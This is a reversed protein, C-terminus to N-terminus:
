PPDVRNELDDAWQSWPVQTAWGGTYTSLRGCARMLWPLFGGFVARIFDVFKDYEGNWGVANSSGSLWVQIKPTRKSRLVYPLAAFIYQLPTGGLWSDLVREFDNPKVPFLSGKALIVKRLDHHTQESLTGLERLLDSALDTLTGDGVVRNRQLFAAIRRCSQPSFGTANAAHGFPTLHLPSAAMALADHTEDLLDSVVATLKGRLLADNGLRHALFTQKAFPYVLNDADPNEPIAAMFQSALGAILPEVRATASTETLVELASTLEEPQESLFIDHQVHTRRPLSTYKVDGLPNDFVITDGETFVGARGCRGAVNRFLLSSIPRQEAGQWTLWDALITFRFPLDVGEALTTTAAIAVLERKQAAAEISRRIAHPVTSNHFAVGRRLLDCMPRLYTHHGEILAITTTIGQPLPDIVPFRNALAAAVKRTSEKTACVCLISGDYRQLLVEALYAVNAHVAPEQQRVQGIHSTPYFRPEPWPLFLQGIASDSATAPRRVPDDSGYWTLSGSEKWFALRRATPRWSDTVVAAEPADIWERLMDYRSLVASLLVIRLPSGREQLLRMRTILGELRIGRVDNQVLQVEDCVVCQLDAILDPVTRLLADFREPTAVIIEMHRDLAIAEAERFGGIMPRIRFPPEPIHAKLSQAVQGGLAVYPALYCVVGPRQQLAAVLCLEGLLTKGTSTPMAVIANESTTLLKHQTIARFQPPLLVRVGSDVLQRVYAEPLTPSHENLTRAVSLRFLHELCLRGSRLLAGEFPTPAALLCRIFAERIVEIRNADGTSLFAGLLELYGKEPSGSACRSLMEGLYHPAVTALIVALSPSDVPFTALTRRVVATASPFNGYMAFAVAAVVALYQRDEDPLGSPRQSAADLIRSAAILPLAKHEDYLQEANGVPLDQYSGMIAQAAAILEGWRASLGQLGRFMAAATNESLAYDLWQPLQGPLM